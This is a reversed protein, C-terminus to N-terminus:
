GKESAGKVIMKTDGANLYCFSQPAVKCSTLTSLELPSPLVYVNGLEFAGANKRGSFYDRYFRRTIGSGFATDTWIRSPSGVLCRVVEVVAVVRQTPATCYLVLHSVDQTPMVKRYEFVKAGSLIGAIHESHISILVAKSM